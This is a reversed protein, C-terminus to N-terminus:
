YILRLGTCLWYLVPGAFTVGDLKDLIGGHGPIFSSSDKVGADRKFMSEVLDGIVTAIGLASGILITQNISLQPLITVKMLTAGLIGGIVSGIAGAVTKNPSIENYLKRKGIGTGVYYAISDSIWVTAYLFIIWEPGTKMLSLQFTLLVPIYLLGLIVASSDALSSRPDRKVLLRLGMISLVSLLLMDIFLFEKMFFTALLVAGWIIGSYKMLGKIRFITYFEVLAITSFFTVIFLFYHAPLYMIYIYFLPLFIIAVVLRKYHM